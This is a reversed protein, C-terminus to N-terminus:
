HLHQKKRCNKTFSNGYEILSDFGSVERHEVHLITSKEETTSIERNDM